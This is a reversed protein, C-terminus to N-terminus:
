ARKERSNISRGCGRTSRTTMFRGSLSLAVSPLICESSVSIQRTMSESGLTLATKSVPAPLAKEAPPSRSKSSLIIASTSVRM